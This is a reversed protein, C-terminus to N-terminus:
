RKVPRNSPLEAPHNKNSRGLKRKERDTEEKVKRLRRTNTNETSVSHSLPQENSRNQALLREYLPMNDYNISKSSKGPDNSSNTLPKDKGDGDDDSDDDDEDGDEDDDTCEDGEVDDDEENDVSNDDDNNDVEDNDKDDDKDDDDMDIDRRNSSHYGIKRDHQQAREKM